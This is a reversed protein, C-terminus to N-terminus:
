KGKKKKTDGFSTNHVQSAEALIGKVDNVYQAEAPSAKPALELYKQYAEACGPPLIMRGSPDLTAKQILGQGKLYYPLAKTPDAKIAEDAAAAAADGNAANVFIAAENTLYTVAGAPNAKAAADYAAVAEPIKGSRAYIEGLGKDADGQTSISPKKTTTEIELAKKFSAEADDYKPDSEMRALGAQAQGLVKWLVSADPRVTIDKTMLTSAETYKATKIETVKAALEDKSATAGLADKAAQPAVDADNLDKVATQLDSNLNKVIEGEKSAQKKIEELQKKQEASLNKEIYEKRSMDDDALVDQGVVIKIGDIRDSFKETQGAQRYILDYSGPAAEGAYEGTSSVPFTFKSSHGGDTSLSVTGGLEPAGTVATIHGHIKGMPKTPTQAFAPLLAFALLGLWLSISRKM